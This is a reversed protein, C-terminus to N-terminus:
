VADPNELVRALSALIALRAEHGRRKDTVLEDARQAPILRKKILLELAPLDTGYQGHIAQQEIFGTLPSLVDTTWSPLVERILPVIYERGDRRLLIEKIPPVAAAGISVLFAAIPRCVPWEPGRIWKLLDGVIPEVKPYGAEVIRQVADLDNKDRPLLERLERRRERLSYDDPHYRESV